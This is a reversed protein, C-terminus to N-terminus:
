ASWRPPFSPLKRGFKRCERNILGNREGGFVKGRGKGRKHRSIKILSRTKWTIRRENHDITMAAFQRHIQNITIRIRSPATRAHIESGVHSRLRALDDIRSRFLTDGSRSSSATRYSLSRTQRNQQPARYSGVREKSM